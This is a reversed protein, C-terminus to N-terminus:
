FISNAEFVPGDVCVRKMQEGENTKVMVTCGACGGVACAMFEELCVQCPLNFEAALKAVAKLMPEPGCSYIAVKKLDQKSINELYKKALDTVYGKYVGTYGQMSALRCEINWKELLAMTYNANNSKTNNNVPKIAFPFPIESGLIVLPKYNNNNKLNQAMAIIPPIGVGGAIMLPIKKKNLATFGNGIPGIVSIYEGVKRKSLELTGEGVIKYLIDFTNNKYNISMISIPRRMPIGDAVKIHVFQGAKARKVIEESQLTIIYQKQPYEQQTKILCNCVYISDRHSNTM